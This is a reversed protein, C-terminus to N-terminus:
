DYLKKKEILMNIFKEINKQRTEPKRVSNIRYLIAYRNTSDLQDFFEQAESHKQLEKLFDEPVTATSQSDYAADWRGDNRAREVEDLGAQRMRQQEILELVKQRNIKSWKSNRRRPTFKQLWYRDDFKNKQGDIWGFCLAVTLAEQYSVSNVGSDKKAIKVWVGQSTTHHDELWHEWAQESDFPIVPLENM